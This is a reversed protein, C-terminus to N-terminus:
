PLMRLIQNMWFDVVDVKESLMESRKLDWAQELSDDSLLEDLINLIRAKDKPLVGYGLHYEKELEELYSLRGVFDNCRISPTGLVMAEAAMTQSDGVIMKAYALVDHMLEPAFSQRYPELGESLQRESTIVVKYRDKLRDIMMLAFDDDIGGVGVDHHANLSSFRMLVYGRKSLGLDQIVKENASFRDPRLYTLEHYGNYTVTKYAWKGSRCVEPAMICTAFPYGIRVTKAVVDFDDENIILSKKGLLWAAHAIAITTGAILDVKLEKAVKYVGLQKQLFRRVLGADETTEVKIAQCPLDSKEVLSELVDKNNYSLIIDHDTSLQVIVNKLMHFHAPHALHFQIRSM